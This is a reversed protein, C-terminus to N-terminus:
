KVGRAVVASAKQATSRLKERDAQNKKKVDMELGLFCRNGNLIIDVGYIRLQFGKFAIIQYNKGGKRGDSFKGEPRLQEKTLHHNDCWRKMHRRIVEEKINTKFFNLVDSWINEDVYVSAKEGTEVIQLDNFPSALKSNIPPALGAPCGSHNM